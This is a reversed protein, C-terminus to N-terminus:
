KYKLNTCGCKEGLKHGCAKRIDGYKIYHLVTGGKSSQSKNSWDVLDKDLGESM